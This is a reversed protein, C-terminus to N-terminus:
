PDAQELEAVAHRARPIYCHMGISQLAAARLMRRYWAATQPTPWSTDGETLDARTFLELYAVGGTLAAVEAIGRPLDTLPVYNLMGCCVVLDYPGTLPLSALTNLSGRMLGRRKGFRTIAYESPDVGTYAVHPRHRRLAARWQGEGCGVDLVSRVPRALVWEAARLVFAVQRALETASKVRHHPNRYWKDFYQRDYVASGREPVSV